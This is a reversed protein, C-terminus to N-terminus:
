YSPSLTSHWSHTFNRMSTRSVSPLLDQARCLRSLHPLRKPEVGGWGAGDRQPEPVRCRDRRQPRQAAGRSTATGWADGRM